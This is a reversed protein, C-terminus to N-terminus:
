FTRTIGLLFIADPTVRPRLDEALSFELITDKNAQYQGGFTIQIPLWGLERLETDFLPTNTDLQAKIQWHNNIAYALGSRASLTWYRPNLDDFRDDHSLYSFGWGYWLSLNRKNLWTRNTLWEPNFSIMSIGIDLGGNGSQTELDGTPLEIHAHWQTDRLAISDWTLSFRIDGLGSSPENSYYVTKGSARLYWFFRDNTNEQRGNQPLQLVDHFHYIFRDAHGESHRVWPLNISLLYDDSIPFQILNQWIWTEGDIRLLADPDTTQSLYNILEFRSHWRAPNKRDTTRELSEYYEARAIGYHQNFPSRNEVTLPSTIFTNSAHTVLAPLM